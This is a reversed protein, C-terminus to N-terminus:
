QRRWGALCAGRCVNRTVDRGMWSFVPARACVTWYLLVMYRYLLQTLVVRVAPSSWLRRPRRGGGGGPRIRASVIRSRGHSPHIEVTYPVNASINSRSLNKKQYANITYVTLTTHLHGQSLTNNSHCIKHLYCTINNVIIRIIKSCVLVEFVNFYM